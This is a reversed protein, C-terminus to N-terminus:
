ESRNDYFVLTRAGDRHLSVRARKTKSLKLARRFDRPTAVAKGNVATIVDGKVFGMAEAPSKKAVDTVLVGTSM